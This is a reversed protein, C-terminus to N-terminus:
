KSNRLFKKGEKTLSGDAYLIDIDFNDVQGIVNQIDYQIFERIENILKPNKTKFMNYFLKFPAHKISKDLYNNVGAEVAKRVELSVNKIAANNKKVPAAGSPTVNKNM